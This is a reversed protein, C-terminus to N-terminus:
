TQGTSDSGVEYGRDPRADTGNRDRMVGILDPMTCGRYEEYGRDPRAFKAASPRMVGILDPM